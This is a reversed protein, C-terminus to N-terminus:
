FRRFVVVGNHGGFGLNGSAAANVTGYQAKNPVYDLDCEPGPNDLNITPPFLGERISLIATIAELGGGGAVCHGIMSKISSIKLSQVAPGFATKLARTETVDNIM